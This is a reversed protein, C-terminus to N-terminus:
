KRLRVLAAELTADRDDRPGGGQQVVVDPAIGTGELLRGDLALAQWRPVWLKVGPLLELPAPNASAGRTPLGVTTVNPLAGMMQVFAENSSVCFPGQLVVVPRADCKGPTRPKLVKDVPPLFADTRRPQSADRYRVKGWTVERDTFRGAVKAAWDENGGGNARVDLILARADALADLAAEVKAFGADDLAWSGILVYGVADKGDGIRGAVLNRDSAVTSALRKRVADLNWNPTRTNQRATGTWGDKTELNVHVDDLDGLTARLAALFSAADKSARLGADLKALFADAAPRGAVGFFPYQRLFHDRLRAALLERGQPTDATAAAVDLRVDDFWVTGPISAFLGAHVKAAGQPAVAWAELASWDCDALVVTTAHMALRKGSADSFDLLGNANRWRAAAVDLGKARASVTLHVWDGPKVDTGQRVMRWLTTSADGTFRLSAKGDCAVTRDVRVDSEKGSNGSRAGEVIEWGAPLDGDDEFSANVLAPPAAAFAAAATALALLPALRM